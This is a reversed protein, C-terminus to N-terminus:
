NSSLTVPYQDSKRLPQKFPSPIGKKTIFEFEVKIITLKKGVVPPGSAEIYRYNESKM